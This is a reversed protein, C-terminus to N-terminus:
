KGRAADEDKRQSYFESLLLTRVYDEDKNSHGAMWSQWRGPEGAGNADLVRGTKGPASSSPVVATRGASGDLPSDSASSEDRSSAAKRTNTPTTPGFLVRRTSFLKRRGGPTTVPSLTYPQLILNDDSSSTPTTTIPTAFRPPLELTMGGPKHSHGKGGGSTEAEHDPTPGIHQQKQQKQPLEQKQELIRRDVDSDDDTAITDEAPSVQSQELQGSIRPFPFQRRHMKGEGKDDNQPYGLDWEQQNRGTEYECRPRRHWRTLGRHYSVASERRNLHKLSPYPLSFNRAPPRVATRKADGDRGAGDGAGHRVTTVPLPDYSEEASADPSAVSKGSNTRHM